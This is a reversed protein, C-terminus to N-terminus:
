HASPFGGVVLRPMSTACAAAGAVAGVDYLSPFTEDPVTQKEAAMGLRLRQIDAGMIQLSVILEGM